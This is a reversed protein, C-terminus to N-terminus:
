VHSAQSKKTQHGEPSPEKHVRATNMVHPVCQHSATDTLLNIQRPNCHRCSAKSAWVQFRLAAALQSSCPPELWCWGEARRREVVSREELAPDRIPEPPLLSSNVEKLCGGHIHRPLCSANDLLKLVCYGRACGCRTMLPMLRM